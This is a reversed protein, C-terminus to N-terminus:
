KRLCPENTIATFMDADGQNDYHDPGVWGEPKIMDPVGLPNPRSPKIGPFKMMNARHVEEWAKDSDIGLIDLTGIAIVCLDILGDVIEENNGNLMANNTEDLEEYLFNVRFRLFEHLTAYDGEEMKEAIWKTVGFRDHMQRIDNVWKSM